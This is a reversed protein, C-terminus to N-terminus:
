FPPPLTCSRGEKFRTTFDGGLQIPSIECFLPTKEVRLNLTIILRKSLSPLSALCEGKTLKIACYFTSRSPSQCISGAAKKQEFLGKGDIQTTRLNIGFSILHFGLSVGVVYDRTLRRCFFPLM